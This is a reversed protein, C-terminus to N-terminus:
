PGGLFKKRSGGRYLTRKTSKGDDNCSKCTQQSSGTASRLTPWAGLSLLVLNKFIISIKSTTWQIIIFHKCAEFVAATSRKSPLLMMMVFPIAAKDGVDVVNRQQLSRSGNAFTYLRVDSVRCTSTLSTFLAKALLLDPM